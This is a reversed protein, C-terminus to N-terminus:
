RTKVFKQFSKNIRIFYIGAPLDNLDIRKDSETLRGQKVIIAQATVIQYDAVDPGGSIMIHDYAPNPYVRFSAAPNYNITSTSISEEFGPLLNFKIEAIGACDPDGHTDIVTILIYQAKLGLLDPGQFGGYIAHGEAKPFRMEGWHSWNVGDLSYDIKVDRFGSELQDPDNCNWVWSKSLNRIEGFDYMIWHSVGYEQKPNQNKACSRWTNKWIEADPEFCDQAALDIYGMLLISIYLWVKM